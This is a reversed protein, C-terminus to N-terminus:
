LSQFRAINYPKADSLQIIMDRIRKAHPDSGPYAANMLALLHNRVPATDESSAQKWTIDTASFGAELKNKVAVPDIGTLRNSLHYSRTVRGPEVPAEMMCVPLRHLCSKREPMMASQITADVQRQQNLFAGAREIAQAARKRAIGALIRTNLESGEKGFVAVTGVMDNGTTRFHHEDLTSKLKFTPKDLERIRNSLENNLDEFIKVYRHSIRSFDTEMQKMKAVCAKSLEKLHMLQADIGESLETIQQSIESRIYGFFGGVITDAVKRANQDIAVLQAAETSVIAGTLLNVHTNCQEVSSDFSNTDVHINVDVPVDERYDVVVTKSGGSQSAPYSVSVTKTGRVTITERYNRTYSM